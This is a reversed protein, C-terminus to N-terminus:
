RHKLIASTPHLNFVGDSHDRLLLENDVERIRRVEVKPSRGPTTPYKNKFPFIM